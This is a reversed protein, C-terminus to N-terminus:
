GKELVFIATIIDNTTATHINKVTWGKDLFQNVVEMDDYTGSTTHKNSKLDTGSVAVVKEM